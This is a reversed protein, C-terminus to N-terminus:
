AVLPPLAAHLQPPSAATNSSYNYTLSRSQPFVCCLPLYRELTLFHSPHGKRWTPNPYSHTPNKQPEFFLPEFLTYILPWAAM